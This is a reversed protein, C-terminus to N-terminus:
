QTEREQERERKLRERLRYAGYARVAQEIKTGIYFAAPLAVVAIEALRAIGM